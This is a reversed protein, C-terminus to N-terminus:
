RTHKLVSDHLSVLPHHLESIHSVAFCFTTIKVHVIISGMCHVCSKTTWPKDRSHMLTMSEDRATAEIVWSRKVDGAYPCNTWCRTGDLLSSVAFNRMVMIDLHKYYRGLYCPEHPWCPALRPGTPGLHALHQGMFRAILIACAHVKHRKSPGWPSVQMCWEYRHAADIIAIHLISILNNHQM